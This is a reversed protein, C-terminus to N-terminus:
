WLLSWLALHGNRCTLFLGVIQKQICHVGQDNLAIQCLAGLPTNRGICMIVYSLSECRECLFVLNNLSREVPKRSNSINYLSPLRSKKRKNRQLEPNEIRECERRRGM